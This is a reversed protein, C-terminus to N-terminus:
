NEGLLKVASAILEQAKAVVPSVQEMQREGPKGQLRPVGSNEKTMNETQPEKQVEAMM